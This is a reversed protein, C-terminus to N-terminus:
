YVQSSKENQQNLMIYEFKRWVSRQISVCLNEDVVM